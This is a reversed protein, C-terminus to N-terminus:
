STPPDNKMGHHSHLFALFQPYFKADRGVDFPQVVITWKQDELLYEAARAEMVEKM